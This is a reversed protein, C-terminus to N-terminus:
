KVRQKESNSMAISTGGDSDINADTQLINDLKCMIEVLGLSVPLKM